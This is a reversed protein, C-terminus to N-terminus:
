AKASRRSQIYFALSIFCLVLCAKIVAQSEGNFYAVLALLFFLITGFLNVYNGKM